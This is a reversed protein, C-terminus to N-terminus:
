DRMEKTWRRRNFARSVEENVTSMTSPRADDESPSLVDSLEEVRSLINALLRDTSDFAGEKAM